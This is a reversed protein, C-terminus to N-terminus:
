KFTRASTTNSFFSNGDKNFAYVRYRYLRNRSLKTNAYTTTNAALTAIHSWTSGDLSRQVIFGSENNSKDTWRLNIRTRSVATGILESRANPVVIPTPIAAASALTVVSYAPV